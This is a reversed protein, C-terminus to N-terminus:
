VAGREEFMALQGAEQWLFVLLRDYRGLRMVDATLTPGAVLALDRAALRGRVPGASRWAEGLLGTGPLLHGRRLGPLRIRGRSAYIVEFSAVEDGTVPEAALLACRDPCAQSYRVATAERSADYRDALGMLTQVGIPLSRAEPFFWPSPMILEAAYENAEREQRKRKLSQATEVAVADFGADRESDPEGLLVGQAGVIRTDTPLQAARGGGPRLARDDDTFIMGEHTPIDDHGVEHFVTWRFRGRSLGPHVWILSASDSGCGDDGRLLMGQPPATLHALRRAAPVDEFPTRSLVIGFYDLIAQEDVPPEAIGCDALVQLAARRPRHPPLHDLPIM